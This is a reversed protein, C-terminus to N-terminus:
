LYQLIYTTVITHLNIAPIDPIFMSM